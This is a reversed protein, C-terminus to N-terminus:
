SHYYAFIVDETYRAGNQRSPCVKVHTLPGTAATIQTAKLPYMCRRKKRVTTKTTVKTEEGGENGSMDEGTGDFEESEDYQEAGETRQIGEDSCGAEGNPQAAGGVTGASGM